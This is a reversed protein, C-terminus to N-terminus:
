IADVVILLVILFACRVVRTSIYSLFRTLVSPDYRSFDYYTTVYTRCAPHSIPQSRTLAYVSLHLLPYLHIDLLLLLSM